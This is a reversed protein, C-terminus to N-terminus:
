QEHNDNEEYYQDLAIGIEWRVYDSLIRARQEPSLENWEDDDWESFYISAPGGDDVGLIGQIKSLPSAIKDHLGDKYKAAEIILKLLESREIQENSM